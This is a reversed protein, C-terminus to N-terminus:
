QHYLMLLLTFIFEMNHDVASINGHYLGHSIYQARIIDWALYYTKDGNNCQYCGDLMMRDHTYHQALSQLMYLFIHISTTNWHHLLLVVSSFSSFLKFSALHNVVTTTAANTYALLIPLLSIHIAITKNTEGPNWLSFQVNFNQSAFWVANCSFLHVIDM